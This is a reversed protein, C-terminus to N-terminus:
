TGTSVLGRAVKKEQDVKTIVIPLTGGMELLATQITASITKVDGVTEHGKGVILGGSENILFCEDNVSVQKGERLNILFEDTNESIADLPGGLGMKTLGEKNLPQEAGPNPSDQDGKSTRDFKNDTGM